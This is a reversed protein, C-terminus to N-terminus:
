PMSSVSRPRLVVPQLEQQVAPLRLDAPRAAGDGAGDLQPVVSRRGQLRRVPGAADTLAVHCIEGRWGEVLSVAFHEAPATRAGRTATGAAIRWLQERIFVGSRQIELWRVYARAFVDGTHGPRFRFRRSVSSAAPFTTASTASSGSARAAVGGARAIRPQKM